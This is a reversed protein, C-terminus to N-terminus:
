GAAAVETDSAERRRMVAARSLSSNNVAGDCWALFESFSSTWSRRAASNLCGEM